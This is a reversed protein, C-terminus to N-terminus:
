AVKYWVSAISSSYMFEKMPYLRGGQSLPPPPNWLAGPIEPNVAYEQVKTYDVVM